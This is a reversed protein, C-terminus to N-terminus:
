LDNLRLVDLVSFARHTALDHIAHCMVIHDLKPNRLWGKAWTEDDDLDNVMQRIKGGEGKLFYSVTEAHRQVAAAKDGEGRVARFVDNEQM